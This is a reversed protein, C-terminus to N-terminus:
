WGPGDAALSTSNDRHTARGRTGWSRSFWRSGPCGTSARGASSRELRAALYLAVRRDRGGRVPRAPLAALVGAGLAAGAPALSGRDLRLDRPGAAGGGLNRRLRRDAGGPRRGPPLVDGLRTGLPVDVVDVWPRAPSRWAGPSWCALAAALDDGRAILALAPSPRWTSCSRRAAASAASACRRSSRGRAAAAKGDLAACLASEEGALFAEAVPHLGSAGGPRPPRGPARRPAPLLAPDAALYATTAGLSAAVLALGDLVLHPLWSSCPPMRATTRSRGALRGRRRGAAQQVSASAAGVGGSSRRRRAVQCGRPRGAGGGRRAPPLDVVTPATCRSTTPSSPGPGTSCARPSPPRSLHRTMTRSSAQRRARDVPRHPASGRGRRGGGAPPHEPPRRPRRGLGLGRRRRLRPRGALLSGRGSTPAPPSATSSPSRGCCTPPRPAVAKWLRGPLRERLLAAAIM